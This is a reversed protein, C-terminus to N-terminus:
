FLQVLMKEVEQTYIKEAIPAFHSVTPEYGGESYSHQTVLYGLYGNCYGVIFPYKVHTSNKITEGIHHFIELPSGVFVFDDIRVATTPVTITTNKFDAMVEQYKRPCVIDKQILKIKSEIPEVTKITHYVRVVEQGIEYGLKATNELNDKYGELGGVFRPNIDGAAGNAFIGTVGPIKEEIYELMHGNWEPSIKNNRCGLSTGHCAYNVFIAKPEGSLKDIRLVSVAEDIPGDPNAGLRYVGEMERIKVPNDTKYIGYSQSSNNEDFTIYSLQNEMKKRRNLAIFSTGSGGGIKVPELDALAEKVVTVIKDPLNNYWDTNVNKGGYFPAAHNHTYAFLINNFPLNTQESVLKRLKDSDETMFMPNQSEIIAITNVNDDFVLARVYIKGFVGNSPKERCSVDYGELYVSEVPTIDVKSIGAKLVTDEAYGAFNFVAVSFLVLLLLSSYTSKM